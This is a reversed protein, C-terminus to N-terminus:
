RSRSSAAPCRAPTHPGSTPPNTPYAPEPANPLVHGLNAAIPETFAKDCASRSSSSCGVLPMAVLAVIVLLAAPGMLPELRKRSLPVRLHVLAIGGVVLLGGAVLRWEFPEGLVLIGVTVAVVPILYTVLSARTAGLDAIVRYNLVYAVGTGFVGLLVIAVLRHLDLHM